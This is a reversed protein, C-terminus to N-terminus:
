LLKNAWLEKVFTRWHICRIGDKFTEVTDHSILIFREFIGEEQLARLGSFDRSSVKASAKIEIAVSNGVLFDVEQKNVSRWYTLMDLSRTYSLYATLEMFVWQEFAKGYLDSNRELSRVDNIRNVVGTDFFYFKATTIAKRKKSGQWAEVIRGILTDELIRYYEHITTASVGVDSAIKAFNLLQSNSLAALKLFSLFSPLKRVLGEQKIEENIYLSVYASLEEIPNTSLYVAPLGGYMLMRDINFDDGLEQFTLPFLNAMWARGALLNVGDAKLKRASSGTLLFRLREEEILRHVEDLLAPVKQIEDIVILGEPRYKESGKILQELDSPKLNLRLFIDSRLLNITVASSLQQRILTSKGVSRPGFLFFSKKETLKLLNPYRQIEM